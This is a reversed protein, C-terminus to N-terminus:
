NDIEWSEPDGEPLDLNLISSYSQLRKLTQNIPENLRESACLIHFSSVKGKIWPKAADLDDSLVILDAQSVILSGLLEPAIELVEFGLPTLQQLRALIDAVPKKLWMSVRLIHNLSIEKELWPENADLDQSLAILDDHNAKFCGLSETNTQPIELELPSFRQVRKLTEAVTEDLEVSARVIQWNPIKEKFLPADSDLNNSFMIMDKESVSLSELIEPSTQPIDLGLPVFRQLNKIIETVSKNLKASAQFIHLSTVKDEQLYKSSHNCFDSFLRLDDDTIKSNGLLDPINKDIRIGRYGIALFRQFLEITKALTEGTWNAAKIIHVLSIKDIFLDDEPNFNELLIMKDINTLNDDVNEPITRSVIVGLPIFKQMRALYDSILLQDYYIKVKFHWSDIFGDKLWSFDWEDDDISLFELDDNTILLDGLKEIDIQPIELGLTIFKNLRKFVKFVTEELSASTDLLRILKDNPEYSDDEVKESDIYTELAEWDRDTTNNVSKINESSILGLPAIRNIRQIVDNVSEDLEYAIYLIDYYNFSDIWPEQGDLNESLIILDEENPVYTELFEPSVSPIEIGFPIFKQLEEFIDGVSIGLELSAMVIHGAPISKQLYSIEEDLNRSILILEERTFQKIFDQQLQSSIKQQQIIEQKQQNQNNLKLPIKLGLIAFKQLRKLIESPSKNFQDSIEIIRDYPVRDLWPSKADLNQSIAILDERNACFDGLFETDVKPVKLGLYIFKQLRKLSKGVTENLMLSSQLVHSPFVFDKVQVENLKDLDNKLLLATAYGPIAITYSKSVQSSSQTKEKYRNWITKRHDLIKKYISNDYEYGFYYNATNQDPFFCGIEALPIKVNRSERYSIEVTAQIKIDRQILFQVVREAIYVESKELKWLWEMSLSSWDLLYEGGKSLETQAWNKDWEVIQKRDVTLKPRRSRCLNVVVCPHKKETVLGDSM